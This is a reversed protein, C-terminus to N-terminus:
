VPRRLRKSVSRNRIVAFKLAYHAAIAYTGVIAFNAAYFLALPRSSDWFDFAFGLFLKSGMARDFSAWVGAALLLLSAARLVAGATRSLRGGALRSFFGLIMEGHLGTHVGIFVLGWYAAASHLLRLYEGDFFQSLGFVHRSNLMGSVCLILMAVLLAANTMTNLIRRTGYKGRFLARCWGFNIAIHLGFFAAFGVGIWEHSARGTSRFALGSIFLAAMLADLGLRAALSFRPM